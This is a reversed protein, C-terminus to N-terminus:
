QDAAKAVAGPAARLARATAIRHWSAPLQEPMGALSKTKVPAEVRFVEDSVWTTMTKRKSLDTVVRDQLALLDHVTTAIREPVTSDGSIWRSVTRETSGTLHALDRRTLGMSETLLMLELASMPESGDSYATIKPRGAM